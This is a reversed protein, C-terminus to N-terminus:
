KVYIACLLKMAQFCKRYLQGNRHPICGDFVEYIQFALPLRDAKNCKNLKLRLASLQAIIYPIKANFTKVQETFM